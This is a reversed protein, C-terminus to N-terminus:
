RSRREAEPQPKDGREPGVVPRIAPQGTGHQETRQRHVLKFSKVPFSKTLVADEQLVRLRLELPLYKGLDEALIPIDICGEYVQGPTAVTWEGSYWHISEGDKLLEGVVRGGDGYFDVMELQVAKAGRNEVTWRAFCGGLESRPEIRFDSVVVSKDDQGRDDGRAEGGDRCAQFAAFVFVAVLPPLYRM